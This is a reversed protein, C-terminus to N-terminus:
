KARDNPILFHFPLTSRPKSGKNRLIDAVKAGMGLATVGLADVLDFLTDRKPLFPSGDVLVVAVGLALASLSWNWMMWGATTYFLLIDNPGLCHQLRHEALHKLLTGKLQM